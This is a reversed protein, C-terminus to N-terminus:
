NSQEELYRELILLASISDEDEKGGKEKLIRRAEESTFREDVLKTEIGFRKRVQVAFRRADKVMKGEKGQPTLPLGVVILEVTYENIIDKLREFVDRRSVGKLPQPIELPGSIALGVFKTGLDISLIRMFLSKVVFACLCWSKLNCIISQLLLMVGDDWYGMERREKRGGIV